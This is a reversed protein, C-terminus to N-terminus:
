AAEEELREVYLCRVSVIVVALVPVALLLGLFGFMVAMASQFFLTLAPPLRVATKMVIPTLVNSEFQQLAIYFLTVWVAKMPSVLLALAIGPAAALIPGFVPVFELLGAILGLALPAPVGLLWLGLATLGGIIVMNVATGAIWGRLTTGIEEITQRVAGRARPPVLHEVGKIYLRPNAALYLGGAVVILIGAIAGLATNLIPLAGAVITAAQRGARARIEEEMDAQPAGLRGVVSRYQAELWGGIQDVAQPLREQIVSFQAQLSPWLLGGGLVLVMLLLVFVLLVAAARPVGARELPDVILSLFSAFLVAFFAIFVIDRGLWLFNALAWIAIAVLAARAVAGASLRYERTNRTQQTPGAM